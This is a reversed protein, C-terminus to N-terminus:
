IVIRLKDRFKFKFDNVEWETPHIYITIQFCGFPKRLYVQEQEIKM